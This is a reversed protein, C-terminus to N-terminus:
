NVAAAMERCKKAAERDIKLLIHADAIKYYPDRALKLCQKRMEDSLDNRDKMQQKYWDAVKQWWEITKELDGLGTYLVALGKYCAPAYALGEAKYLNVKDPHQPHIACRTIDEKYIEFGTQAAKLAKEYEFQASYLDSLTIFARVRDNLELLRLSHVKNALKDRKAIAQPDIRAASQALSLEKERNILSHNMSYIMKRVRLHKDQPTDKRKVTFNVEKQALPQDSDEMTVTVQLKHTGEKVPWADFKVEHDPMQGLLSMSALLNAYRTSGFCEVTLTMQKETSGGKIKADFSVPGDYTKGEVPCNMEITIDDSAAVPAENTLGLTIFLLAIFLTTHYRVISM